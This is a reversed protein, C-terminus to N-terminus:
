RRRSGAPPCASDSARPRSCRHCADSPRSPGAARRGTSPWPRGLWRRGGPGRGHTFLTAQARHRQTPPVAQVGRQGRQPLEGALEGRDDGDGVVAPRGAADAALQANSGGPSRRIARVASAPSVVRRPSTTGVQELVAETAAARQGSMRDAVQDEGAQHVLQLIRDRRKAITASRTPATPRTSGILGTGSSRTASTSRSSGSSGARTRVSERGTRSRPWGPGPARIRRSGGPAGAHAAATSATRSASTTTSPGPDHNVLTM